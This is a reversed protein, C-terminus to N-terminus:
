LHSNGSDLRVHPGINVDSAIADIMHQLCCLNAFSAYINGFEAAEEVKNRWNSYMEEHLM